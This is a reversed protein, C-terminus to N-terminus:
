ISPLPLLSCLGYAHAFGEIQREPRTSDPRSIAVVEAIGYDRAAALVPLSDDAFLAAGPAFPHRQQMQRWFAQDEKPAGLDHSSVLVDFMERLGTHELKVEWSHRHANTVLWLARGSDRVAHLFERAGDLVGIRDRHERKLAALDMRTVESWYDVCYWPLTHEVAKFKPRLEANAEDLTMGNIEAYRQPLLEQWFFADFSLDLITGDMDLLVHTVQRWDPKATTM